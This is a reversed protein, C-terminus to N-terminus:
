DWRANSSLLVSTDSRRIVGSATISGRSIGSVDARAENRARYNKRETRETKLSSFFSKTAANDWVNCSRSMSSIIGSRGEPAAVARRDTGDAAQNAEGPVLRARITDQYTRIRSVRLLSSNNSLQEGSNQLCDRFQIAHRSWQHHICVISIVSGSSARRQRKAWYRPSFAVTINFPNGIVPITRDTLSSLDLEVVRHVIMTTGLCSM